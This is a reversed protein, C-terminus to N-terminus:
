VVMEFTHYDIYKNVYFYRFNDLTTSYHLEGSIFEARFYPLLHIGCLITDLHVVSAQQTGHSTLELWVLWMGMEEKPADSVCEFWEVLACLYEVDDYKFSFFLKVHTVHSGCFGDADSGTSM